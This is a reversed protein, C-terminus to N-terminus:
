QDDKLLSSNEIKGPRHYISAKSKALSLSANKETKSFTSTSYKSREAAASINATNGSAVLKLDETDVSSTDEKDTCDEDEEDDDEDDSRMM